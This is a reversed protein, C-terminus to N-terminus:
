ALPERGSMGTDIGGRTTERRIARHLLGGTVLGSRIVERQSARGVTLNIETTGAGQGGNLAMIGQEGLQRTAQSNLVAEQRLTTRREDPAMASGAQWGTGQHAKAVAAIQLGSQIGVLAAPGLGAPWGFQGFARMVAEAGSVLISTVASAKQMREQEGAFAQYTELSQQWVGALGSFVSEALAKERTAKEEAIRKEEEARAADLEALQADRDRRIAVESDAALQGSLLGEAQYQHLLALREQYEAEIRETDTAGLAAMSDSFALAEDFQAALADQAARAAKDDGEGGGPARTTGGGRDKGADDLAAGFGRAREEAEAILDRVRELPTGAALTSAVWEDAEDKMAQTAAIVEPSAGVLRQFALELARVKGTAAVVGLAIGQVGTAAVGIIEAVLKFAGWLGTSTLRAMEGIGERNESILDLTLSLAGKVNDFFGADGVEVKFRTWEDALNSLMGSMTKSLREAGGAFMGENMTDLLAARFDELSMKTADMGTSLEVQKRLIRGADSELGTAGQNWAKGIDLAAQSLDSGTTAAFDILGPMIEEAAAGFGRLTVEAGVVPGLEFPTTAAFSFLEEMRAQAEASSGMLTTLKVEYGEMEAGAQIVGHAFMGAMGALATGAAAAIGALGSLSRGIRSIGPEVGRADLGIQLMMDGLSM